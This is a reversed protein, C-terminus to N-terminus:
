KRALRILDDTVALATTGSQREPTGRTAVMSPATVFRGAIGLAPVGDIGYDDSLRTAQLCKSQVGFSNWAQRLKGADLGLRTGLALLAEDSNLNAQELQFANFVRDHLEAEAGLAELAYFFRQHLRILGGFGVHVRRFAVDAPAQALWQKLLPDFVFCHPCGYWFFEIVEIKGAPVTTHLPQPLQRYQQGEVPSGQALAERGATGLALALPLANFQRRQMTM